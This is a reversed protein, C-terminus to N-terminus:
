QANVHCFICVHIFYMYAFAFICRTQAPTYKCPPTYKCMHLNVKVYICNRECAWFYVGTCIICIHIIYVGHTFWRMHVPSLVCNFLNFYFLKLIKIMNVQLYRRDEKVYDILWKLVVKPSDNQPPFHSTTIVDYHFLSWRQRWKAQFGPFIDHM